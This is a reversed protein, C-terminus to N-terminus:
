YEHILHWHRKVYTVYKHLKETSINVNKCSVYYRIKSNEALTKSLHRKVFNVAHQKKAWGSNYVLQISICM